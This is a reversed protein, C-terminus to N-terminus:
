RRFKWTVDLTKCRQQPDTAEFRYDFGYNRAFKPRAGVYASSLVTKTAKQWHDSDVICMCQRRESQLAEQHCASTHVLLIGHPSGIETLFEGM